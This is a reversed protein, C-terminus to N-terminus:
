GAKGIWTRLINAAADPDERVIDALEDRLSPGHSLTRKLRAAPTAQEGVYDDEAAPMLAPAATTGQTPAQPAANVMARLWLLSMLSLGIMGLTSWYTGLWAFMRDAFGPEPIEVGSIPTFTVVSVLSDATVGEPPKVFPLLAEKIREKEAEEITAVQTADIPPEEDASDPNAQHWQKRYIDEFFSRPVGVSVAVKTPTMGVYQISRETHSVMYSEQKQTVTEKTSSKKGISSIQAGLNPAQSELGPRGAPDGTETSSDTSDKKSSVIVTEPDIKTTQEESGREKSLDVDFSITVGPVYALLALAREEYDKEYQRKRNFYEDDLASGGGDPGNGRYSLNTNMDVVSVDSPDTLGIGGAVLVRISNVLNRDLPRGGKPKVQVSATTVQKRSFGRTEHTNFFVSAQEISSMRRIVKALEQQLVVKIIEKRQSGTAFPSSETLVRLLKDGADQPLAGADAMAAIYETQRRRPVRIQQGEVTYDSLGAQAFAAQVEMLSESPFPHGGLLYSDPGATQTRFLFVLSIVVVGFLLAGTIRAGPTMSRFLDALQAYAKNLFDM